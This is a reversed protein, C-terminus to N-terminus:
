IRGIFYEQTVRIVYPSVGRKELAEFVSGWLLSIFANKVEQLIIMPIRQTRWMGAAAEEM